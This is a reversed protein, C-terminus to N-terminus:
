IVFCVPERACQQMEGLLFLAENVVAQERTGRVKFKGSELSRDKGTFSIVERLSNAKADPHLSDYAEVARSCRNRRFRPICALIESGEMVVDRQGDKLRQFAETPAKATSLANMESRVFARFANRRKSHDERRRLLMAFWALGLKGLFVAVAAAPLGLVWAVPDKLLDGIQPPYDM